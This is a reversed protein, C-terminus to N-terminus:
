QQICGMGEEEENIMEKVVDEKDKYFYAQVLQGDKKNRELQLYM